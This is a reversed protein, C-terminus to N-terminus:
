TFPHFGHLQFYVLVTCTCRVSINNAAFPWTKMMCNKKAHASKIWTHGHILAHRFEFVTFPPWILTFNSHVTVQRQFISKRSLCLITM